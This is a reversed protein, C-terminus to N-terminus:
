AAQVEGLLRIHLVAKRASSHREQLGCQLCRIEVENGAEDEMNIKTKGGCAMLERTRRGM